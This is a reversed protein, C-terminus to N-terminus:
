KRALHYGLDVIQVKPEQVPPRIWQAVPGHAARDSPGRAPRQLVTKHVHLSVDELCEIDYIRSGVVCECERKGGAGIIRALARRTLVSAPTGRSTRQVFVVM